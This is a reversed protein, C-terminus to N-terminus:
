IRFNKPPPPMPHVAPGAQLLVTWPQISHLELIALKSWPDRALTLRIESEDAADVVLLTHSGDGLPGGLVIFRDSALDDMFTAHESWQEQSRMPKAPDWAKGRTRTVVFLKKMDSM